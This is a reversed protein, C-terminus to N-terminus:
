ATKKIAVGILVLLGSGFLGLAAPIPVAAVEFQWTYNITGGGSASGIIAHYKGAALPMIDTFSLLPSSDTFRVYQSTVVQQTYNYIWFDRHVISEDMAFVITISTAKLGDPINYNFPDVDFGEVLNPFSSSGSVTNLGVDFTGVSFDNDISGGESSVLDGSISEDYNVVAAMGSTYSCVFLMLASFVLIHWNSKYM